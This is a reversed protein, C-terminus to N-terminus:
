LLLREIEKKYTTFNSLNNHGGRKITIFHKGGSPSALEYLKKGSDYPVVNDNTGHFIFTKCNVKKIYENSKFEYKILYHVPFIPFRKKAVSTLNYFPTELILLGPTNEAALKTAFATGLSRGYLIIEEEKYRKSVYDYFLQADEYLASESLKGTSKGYSRYDMVLVDWNYKTFSSTIEGWRSLDGANGHFYLIVGKPNETKFHIANLLAGDAAELNIEEFPETFQYEYDAALTSPLFILKEQFLTLAAILMVYLIVLTYLIKKFM